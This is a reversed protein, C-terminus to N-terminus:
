IAPFEKNLESMISFSNIVCEAATMTFLAINESYDWGPPISIIRTAEYAVSIPILDSKIPWQAQVTGGSLISEDPQPLVEDKGHAGM